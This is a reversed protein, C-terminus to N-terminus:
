GTLAAATEPTPPQNQPLWDEKMGPVSYEYPDRYVHPIVGSFNAHPPPSDVTWELTNAQWPNRGAVQGRAMSYFFNVFLPIQGLIAIIAGVTAIVHLYQYQQLAPYSSTEYLRRPEGAFGIIFLPIMVTYFGAITMVFHLQGLTENLMRGFMKPYWYYLGAIAGLFGTSALTFHFHAVVYYTGHLYIDTADTGLHIGTAGGIVFSFLGGVAFLMATTWRISARWLIATMSFVMIAFPVTIFITFISFPIAARPDMASVYMHHAWVFFSLLGAGLASFIITRYGFIPKRAFVTMVEIIIGFGPLAIVYVEPHGFFWFLHQWLMPDGGRDPRFFGTGFNRDLLLMLAAAVLPGVSLLFLTSAIVQTWVKLPVRTLTMGPARMNFTTTIFNVGGMLFSVFDLAVALIWLDQGFYVGTYEQVASLPPYAVWGAAAPGGPVFFSAILTLCATFFIWVSLMNLTPFAMDDAGVMLPILYNAFTSIVFPMAAFLVMITGHMTFLANYTDPGVIGWGPAATEPFALQWRLVYSAFSGIAAMILALALYQKAIVKHDLSFVYRRVFGLEHEGGAAGIASDM